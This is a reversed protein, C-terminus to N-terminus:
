WLKFFNLKGTKGKKFLINQNVQWFSWMLIFKYWIVVCAFLCLKPPREVLCQLILPHFCSCCDATPNFPIWPCFSNRVSVSHHRTQICLSLPSWSHIELQPVVLLFKNGYAVLESLWCKSGSSIQCQCSYISILQGIAFM